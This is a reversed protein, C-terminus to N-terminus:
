LEEMLIEEIKEILIKNEDHKKICIRYYKDNLGEYNACSRLLIGKKAIKEFFNEIETYFLIFNAKSKVYKISLRDFEVEIFKKEKAVIEVTELVYDKQKTAEIGSIEAIQSVSWPQAVKHMKHMIEQNYCIGYGLRAGALAFIKTFAKLVFINNKENNILTYEDKEHLFDIFCEDIVVFIDNEQSKKIIELMFDKNIIKGTPNNPQCLFLIDIEPNLCDLFENDLEFNKNERLFHTFIECEISNLAKKYESFTPALLLAKKPKLAFILRYILDSAGNGCIINMQHINEYESIAGILERSMFDPYLAIEDIKEIIKMKIAESLGLPSLNVSFDLPKELYKEEFGLIDGGHMM